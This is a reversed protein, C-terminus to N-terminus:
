RARNSPPSNLMWVDSRNTLSRPAAPSARTISFKVYSFRIDCINTVEQHTGDYNKKTTIRSHIHCHKRIGHAYAPLFKLERLEPLYRYGLVHELM